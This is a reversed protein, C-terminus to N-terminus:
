PGSSRSRAILREITTGIFVCGFLFAAFILWETTKGVNLFDEPQNFWVLMGLIGAVGGGQRGSEQRGSKM